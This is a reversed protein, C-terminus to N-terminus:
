CELETFLWCGKLKLYTIFQAEHIPDLKDVTKNEVIVCDEVLMDIRYANDIIEGDYVLPVPVECAVKLGRRRLEHALCKQYASELLGPGLAMHVKISSDIIISGIEEIDMGQKEEREKFM